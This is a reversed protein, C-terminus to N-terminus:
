ATVLNTFEPSDVYAAFGDDSVTMVLDKQDFDPIRSRMRDLIETGDGKSVIGLKSQSPISSLLRLIDDDHASFGILLFNGCAGVFSSARSTHSQPCVFEKPRDVPVVMQPYLYGHDDTSGPVYFDQHQRNWRVLKIEPGFIPSDRLGSPALALGSLNRPCNELTRAWNVSGHPKVLLWKRSSPIYSDLNAFEHGDYREIASELLLDYNLSLFLVEEFSYDLVRRVFTDYKSSAPLYDQSITWFLERLYRPIDLFWNNKNHEACDLFDKLIGEVNEGSKLRTRVEDSRGQVRPYHNLIDDFTMAFVDRALPPRLKPNAPTIGTPVCDHSAGAGLIITLRKFPGEDMKM